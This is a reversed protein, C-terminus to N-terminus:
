VGKPPEPLPMWHTIENDDYHFGESCWANRGGLGHNRFGIKVIRGHFAFLVCVLDEPMRESCKIWGDPAGLGRMEEAKRDYWQAKAEDQEASNGAKNGARYRYKYANLKCFWYVAKVGFKEEMEVICEKRGEQQYHSPHDVNNIRMFNSFNVCVECKNDDTHNYVCKECSCHWEKM